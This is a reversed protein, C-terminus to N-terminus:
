AFVFFVPDIDFSINSGGWGAVAVECYQYSAIWWRYANGPTIPMVLVTADPHNDLAVIQYGLVSTEHNILITSASHVRRVFAISGLVATPDREIEVPAGSDHTTLSLSPDHEHVPAGVPEFEDVVVFIDAYARAYGGVTFLQWPDDVTRQGCRCPQQYGASGQWGHVGVRHFPKGVRRTRDRLHQQRDALNSGFQVPTVNRFAAAALNTSLSFTPINPVNGMRDAVRELERLLEPPIKSADLDVASAFAANARGRLDQQSRLEELRQQTLEDFRAQTEDDVPKPNWRGSGISPL